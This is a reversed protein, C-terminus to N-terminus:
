QTFHYKKRWDKLRAEPVGLERCVEDISRGRGLEREARRLLAIIEDADHRPAKRRGIRRLRRAVAPLIRAPHKVAVMLRDTLSRFLGPGKLVHRLARVIHPYGGNKELVRILEVVFVREDEGQVSMRRVNAPTLPKSFTQCRDLAGAAALGAMTRICKGCEGCNYIGRSDEWCVRLSKMALENEAIMEIKESRFAECGDHVIELAETSWLPDLVPHSGCPHLEAYANTSPILLRTLGPMLVHGVAALAVGFAMPWAQFPKLVDRLNTEIEIVHKGTERGVNRVVESTRRRLVDDDLDIDFGYVLVLDTIEERRKLLTYFSDVGASFFAGTRAPGEPRARRVPRAGTVSFRSCDPQWSRLVDQVTELNQLYQKSLPAGVALDTGLKMCGWTALTVAAEANATLECDSTQFFIDRTTGSIQLSLDVRRRDPSSELRTLSAAM